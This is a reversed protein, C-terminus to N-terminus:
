GAPAAPNLHRVLQTRNAAGTKALLLEVHGKVTRPALYLREAIQRNTLGDAVLVLVDMERSTVGLEALHAPVTSDGRGARRQKVGARRGLSRAARAMGPFGRAQAWDQAQSMWGAPDGWGDALASPAALRHGLHRYGDFAPVRAFLREATAVASRAREAEGDRALAAAKALHWLADAGTAVRLEASGTEARARAGGDGELDLTTALLGWLYWIPLPTVGPMMRLAAVGAQWHRVAADLDDALLAPLGRCLAALGIIEPDDGALATAESAAQDARTDDGAVAHAQGILIWAFAQQSRAGLRRAVDLTRRAAPLAIDPEFRVGHVAALHQDVAALVGPAAADVAAARAFGLPETDLSRLQAVTALEHLARARWVALGDREATAVARRFWQEAQALDSRRALRGLVEMAQCRATPDAHADGLADRADSEAETYRGRELAVLAALAATGAAAPFRRRLEAVLRDAEAWRGQGATARVVAEGLRRRRDETGPVDALEVDVDVADALAGAVDGALARAHARLERIDTREAGVALEMARDLFHAGAGPLGRALDAEAAAVLLRAARDTRGAHLALTAGLSAQGSDSTGLAALLREAASRRQAGLMGHLVAGRLLEHRFRPSGVSVDVLLGARAAARLADAVSDPGGLVNALLDTSFERGLLAAHEVVTRAQGLEDLRLAVSVALSRPVIRGACDFRWGDGDRRLSGDALVTQVIEGVLLPWGEAPHVVEMLEPLVEDVSLGLRHAVLARVAAADLPGLEVLVALQREVLRLTVEWPRGEPRLTVLLRVASREVLAQVVALTEVDAWHLDEVVVVPRARPAVTELLRALADALVVPHAPEAGTEIVDDLLGPLLAALSRRHVRLAGAGPDAGCGILGLAIEVLPRLSPAPPETASGVVATGRTAVRVLASKGIGAEGAVVVCGGASRGVLREVDSRERDRGFLVPDVPVAVTQALEAESVM